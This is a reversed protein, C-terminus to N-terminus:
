VLGYKKLLRAFYSRQLSLSAAAKTQHGDHRDLAAELTERRFNEVLAHFGSPEGAQLAPTGIDPHLDDVQIQDQLSLVAAREITNSLERVNGPWSYAEM